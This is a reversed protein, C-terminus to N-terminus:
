CVFAPVRSIDGDDSSTVGSQKPEKGVKYLIGGFQSCDHRIEKFKELLSGIERKLMEPRALLDYKAKFRSHFDEAKADAGRLPDNKAAIMARTIITCTQIDYTKSRGAGVKKGKRSTNLISDLYEPDELDIASSM